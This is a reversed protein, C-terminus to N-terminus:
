SQRIFKLIKEVSEKISMNSTDIVFDAYKKQDFYDFGYIRKWEKREIKEREKIEKMAQKVSIKDRQASRKARVELPVDLWIKKNSMDRLFYIGLKSNIVVNGKKAEKIQPEDLVKQHFEKTRGYKKRWVELSSKGEKKSKGFSKQIKGVSFYRLKLKRALAKAITSSGAGPPGSVVIVNKKM